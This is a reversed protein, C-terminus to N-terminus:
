SPSPRPLLRSPEPNGAPVEGGSRRTRAGAPTKSTLVLAYAAIAALRAEGVSRRLLRPTLM